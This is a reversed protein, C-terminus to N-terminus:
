AKKKNSKTCWKDKKSINNKIKKYQCNNGFQTLNGTITLQYYHMNSNKIYIYNYKFYNFTIKLFWGRTKTILRTHYNLPTFAEVAYLKTYHSVLCIYWFRTWHSDLIPYLYICVCMTNTMFYFLEYCARLILHSPPTLHSYFLTITIFSTPAPFGSTIGVETYWTRWSM